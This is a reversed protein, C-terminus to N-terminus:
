SPHIALSLFAKLSGSSRRDFQYLRAKFNILELAGIIYLYAPNNILGQFCTQNVLDSAFNAGEMLNNQFIHLFYLIESNLTRFFRNSIAPM